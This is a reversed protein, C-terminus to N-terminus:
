GTARCKPGPPFRRLAPVHAPCEPPAAPPLRCQAGGAPPTWASPVRFLVAPAAVLFQDRARKRARRHKGRSTELDRRSLFTTPPAPGDRRRAAGISPQASWHDADAMSFFDVTM